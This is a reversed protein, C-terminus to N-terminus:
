PQVQPIRFEYNKFSYILTKSAKRFERTPGQM